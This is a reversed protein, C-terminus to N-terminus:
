NETAPSPETEWTGDWTREWQCVPWLPWAPSQPPPAPGLPTHTLPCRWQLLTRPSPLVAAPKSTEGLWMWPGLAEQIFPSDEEWNPHLSAPKDSLQFFPYTLSYGQVWCLLGLPTETIQTNPRQRPKGWPEAPSSDAQLAPSRPEIGPNSSVRSFPIAVWEVGTNQGPSNWSSYLGHPWSSDSLVWCSESNVIRSDCLCWTWLPLSQLSVTHTWLPGQKLWRPWGLRLGPALSPEARPKSGVPQQQPHHPVRPCAVATPPCLSPLTTSSSTVPSWPLLSCPGQSVSSRPHPQHHLWGQQTCLLYPHPLTHDQPHQTHTGALWVASNWPSESYPQPWVVPSPLLSTLVDCSQPPPSDDLPWALFSVWIRVTVLTM